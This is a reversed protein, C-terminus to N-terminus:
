LASVLEASIEARFDEPVLDLPAGKSVAIRCLELTRLQEPVHALAMGDVTVAALCIEPDHDIESVYKLMGLGRVLDRIIGCQVEAWDYADKTKAILTAGPAMGGTHNWDWEVGGPRRLGQHGRHLSRYQLQVRQGHRREPLPPFVEELLRYIPHIRTPM